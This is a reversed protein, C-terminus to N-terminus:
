GEANNMKNRVIVKLKRPTAWSVIPKLTYIYYKAPLRLLRIGRFLVKSADVSYKLKRRKYASEDERVLYLVESLNYGRYGQSFFRFWLDVDETRRTFDSVTYGELAKMVDSRILVTAHHFPNFKPLDTVQPEDKISIVNKKGNKDFAQMWTGVVQYKEHQELFDVQKELREPVSVDDGDMRAIYEGKAYELCRNLSAALMMNKENHIVKIKLPYQESYSQAIKLTNDTSADDCMILEWDQYTQSLISEIAEPLTDECNYIGMIISVM